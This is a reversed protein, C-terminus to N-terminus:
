TRSQSSKKTKKKFLKAIIKILLFIILLILEIGIILFASELKGQGFWESPIIDFYLM